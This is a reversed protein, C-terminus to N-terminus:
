RVGQVDPLSSRRVDVKQGGVDILGVKPFPALEIRSGAVRESRIPPYLLVGLIGLGAFHLTAQWQTSFVTTFNMVLHLLAIDAGVWYVAQRVTPQSRLGSELGPSPDMGEILSVNSHLAARAVRM